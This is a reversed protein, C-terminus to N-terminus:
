LSTSHPFKVPPYRKYKRAVFADPPHAWVHVLVPEAQVLDALNGSQSTETLDFRALFQREQSCCEEMRGSVDEHGVM